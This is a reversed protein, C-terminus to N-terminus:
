KPLVNELSSVLFQMEAAPKEAPTVKPILSDDFLSPGYECASYYKVIYNAFRYLYKISGLAEEPTIKKSQHAAENGLRRIYNIERFISDLFIVNRFSPEHILNSLKKEYPIKLDGDNDYMWYIFAELSSRCSIACFKPYAYVLQEAENAVEYFQAWQGKLFDFNSTM